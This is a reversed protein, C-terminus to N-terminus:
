EETNVVRPLVADKPMSVKGPAPLAKALDDDTAILESLSVVEYGERRLGDILVPLAEVAQRGSSANDTLLVISGNSVSGLVSTVVADAGPLMWDGSDVNWSVAAGVLDMTEAWTRESFAAFPARLLATRKGTAREIADFGASIQKRAASASQEALSKDEYSNSGLEFGAAAIAKAADAHEEIADGALFFTASAGKQQLISVIQETYESPGEDFTLAVYQKGKVDPSVSRCTVVCDVVEEVVGRDQTKGSTKGTWVESRGPVGWTTVYEIAGSGKIVLQPAIATAQVEHPEYEDRGNAVEVEDHEQLKTDVLKDDEVQKGNLKVSVREGGRKDLVSDDVALLKGPTPELDQDTILQELSSNIRAKVTSGNLTIDVSRNAYWIISAIFFLLACGVAIFAYPRRSNAPRRTNMQRSSRRGFGQSHRLYQAGPKRPRRKHAGPLHDSPGKRYTPRKKTSYSTTYYPM